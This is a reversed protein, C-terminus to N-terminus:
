AAPERPLKGLRPREIRPGALLTARVRLIADRGSGVAVIRVNIFATKAAFLVTGFGVSGGGGIEDRLSKVLRCGRELRALEYKGNRERTEQHLDDAHRHVIALVQLLRRLLLELLNGREWVLREHSAHLRHRLRILLNHGNSRSERFRRGFVDRLSERGGLHAHRLRVYRGESPEAGEPRTRSTVSERRCPSDNPPTRGISSTTTNESVGTSAAVSSFSATNPGTRVASVASSSYSDASPTACRAISPAVHSTVGAAHVAASRSDRKLFFSVTPTDTAMAMHSATMPTKKPTGNTYPWIVERCAAM